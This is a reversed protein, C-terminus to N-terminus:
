LVRQLTPGTFCLSLSLCTSHYAMPWIIGRISKFGHFYHYASVPLIILWQGYSVGSVKLDTFIIIPQSLYCSLGIAMHYGQYRLVRSVYHYALVSLMIPWDNHGFSVRQVKPSKFCCSLSLCITHYVIPWIICRIGKPGHFMIIPQSLYCSLGIHILNLKPM